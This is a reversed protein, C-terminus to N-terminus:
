DKETSSSMAQNLFTGQLSMCKLPTTQPPRPDKLFTAGQQFLCMVLPLNQTNIAEAWRWNMTEAEHTHYFVLYRLRMSRSDNDHGDGMGRTICEEEMVYALIFEKKWLTALINKDDLM